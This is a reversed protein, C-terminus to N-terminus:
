YNVSFVVNKRTIIFKQGKYTYLTKTTNDQGSFTRLNVQAVIPVPDAYLWDIASMTNKFYKNMSLKTQEKTIHM